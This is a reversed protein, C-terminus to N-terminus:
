AWSISQVNRKPFYYNGNNVDQLQFGLLDVWIIRGVIIDGCLTTVTIKAKRQRLSEFLSQTSPRPPQPKQPQHTM